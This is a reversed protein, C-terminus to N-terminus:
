DSNQGSWALATLAAMVLWSRLVTATHVDVYHQGLTGGVLGILVCASALLSDPETRLLAPLMLALAALQMVDAYGWRHPLFFETNLAMLVILAFATTEERRRLWVLLLMLATMGALIIKNVFGVELRPWGCRLRLVYYLHAFSSCSVNHLSRGFQVGEVPGEHEPPLRDNPGPEPDDVAVYYQDGVDLYSQWASTPLMLCALATAVGVTPLMAGLTKWRRLLVLGGALILLNPRMLGLAGLAVGAILSDDQGSRSVAIAASLALLPFVYMQGRELHMRWIDTALFLVTAGVLFVVRHRQAPLSRSLLVLSAIMALWECLFSAFRQAKYPLPALPAYLLLAPPSITLRHAKPEHVPDLWEEPMGPEWAFTYPDYGALMVRAGVVRNRLDDGSFIRNDQYTWIVLVLAIGLAVRLLMREIPTLREPDLAFWRWLFFPSSPSTM